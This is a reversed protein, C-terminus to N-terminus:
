RPKLVRPATYAGTSAGGIGAGGRGISVGGGRVGAPAALFRSPAISDIGGVTGPTIEYTPGVRFTPIADLSNRMSARVYLPTVGPEYPNSTSSPVRIDGLNFILDGYASTTPRSFIPSIFTRSPAFGSDTSVEFLFQDAGEGVNTNNRVRYRPDSFSTTPGVTNFYRTFDTNVRLVLNDTDFLNGNIDVTPPTQILPQFLPTYAGTAGSVPSLTPTLNVQTREGSNNNNNNNNNDDETTRTREATIRAVRYYYTQGIVLPRQTFEIEIGDEDQVFSDPGAGADESSYEITSTTNNNNNNNNDDGNNETITILRRIESDGSAGNLAPDTFTIRSSGSLTRADLVAQLNTVDPSFGPNEGRYILYAVVGERQLKQAFNIGSFGPSFSFTAAPYVGRPNAERVENVRPSSSNGGGGFGALGVLAALGVLGILGKSSKKAFSERNSPPPSTVPTVSGGGTSAVSVPYAGPVFIQRIRDGTRVGAQGGASVRATAQDNNVSTITIEAIKDRTTVNKARNYVDRLVSYRQGIAVGNRAGISLEVDTRTTNLVTGTPLTTQRMSRVASFVAKNIAEDILIENAVASLRQEAPEVVRTGNLYDGTAADLQRVEVSVTARKGPEINVGLIRGSFVSRAIVAQALRIQATDNFPPQLGAQQAVAEEVRARPVVEYDGSRQLEVALGDAAKRGLLPDLGNAVAFDLVVVTQTPPTQAHAPAPTIAAFLAFLVPLLWGALVFRATQRMWSAEHIFPLAMKLRPASSM